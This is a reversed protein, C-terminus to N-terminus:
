EKVWFEDKWEECNVPHEELKKFISDLQEPSLTQELYGYLEREEFRIHDTLLNGLLFITANDADKDLSLILERINDHEKKLRIAMPHDAPMYPLLFNEEQYFHPKIHQHWYQVAYQRLKDISTNHQLGQRVKRVFLLGDHHEHSLPTLQKSRKIPKVKEM